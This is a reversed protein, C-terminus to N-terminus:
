NVTSEGYKERLQALRRADDETFDQSSSVAEGGPGDLRTTVVTFVADSPVDAEGWRSFRNPALNWSAIM